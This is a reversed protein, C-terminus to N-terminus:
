QAENIETPQVLEDLLQYEPIDTWSTETTLFEENEIESTQTSASTSTGSVNFNWVMVAMLMALGGTLIYRRFYTALMDQWVLIHQQNELSSQLRSVAFPDPEFEEFANQLGPLDQMQYYSRALKPHAQLERELAKLEGPNLEGDLADIIRRELRAETKSKKM